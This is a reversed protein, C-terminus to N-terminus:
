RILTIDGAKLKVSGRIDIAKLLYIYVGPNLEQGKYTGNWRGNLDGPSLDFASFVNNGWRDFVEFSSIHDINNGTFVEAFDNLGDGDPTFANPVFLGGPDAVRVFVTDRRTCGDLATINIYYYRNDTPLIVQSFCDACSVSDPLLWTINALRAPDIDSSAQLTLSDGLNVLIEDIGLTLDFTPYRNVTITTDYACGNVDKVLVQYMAPELFLFANQDTYFQDNLSFSFPGQGGKLSDIVIIADNAGDCSASIGSVYIGRLNSVKEEILISEQSICDNSLSIVSIAYTGPADL